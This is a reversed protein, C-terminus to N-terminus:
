RLSFKQIQALHKILKFSHWLLSFSFNDSFILQTQARWPVIYDPEGDWKSKSSCTPQPVQSPSGGWVPKRLNTAVISSRMQRPILEWFHHSEYILKSVKRAIKLVSFPFFPAFPLLQTCLKDEPPSKWQNTTRFYKWQFKSIHFGHYDLDGMRSLFILKM